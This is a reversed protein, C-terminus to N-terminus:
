RVSSQNARWAGLSMGTERRFFKRLSNPHKFGCFDSIGKLQRSPNKLLQKVCELQVVHIEELISRGTAKRFRADAQRRSCPFLAAVQSARLGTCAERHILDLADVVACDSAFQSQTSARRVIRLPGFIVRGGGATNKDATCNAMSLLQLAALNGGRRFDPEISSLPPSTHECIQRYNDVGLVAIEEPISLGEFHAATIAEAATKDNAAFVACPKPLRKLFQRLEKQRGIADSASSMHHFVDCSKGNLELATCFGRQRDESWYRREAYPIYAFHEAGTTMLEKAAMEATAISDHSVSAYGAPLTKPNHSFFVVPLTGFIKVDIETHENGCEAIAGIPKWFDVLRRINKPSPFGDIAQVHCGHKEAIEQVGAFKGPASTKSTPQFYLIVNMQM